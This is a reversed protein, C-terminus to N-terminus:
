FLEMIAVFINAFTSRTLSLVQVIQTQFLTLDSEVLFLIGQQYYIRISVPYCLLVCMIM